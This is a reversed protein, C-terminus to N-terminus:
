RDAVQELITVAPLPKGELVQLFAGGGTSIYSIKDEIGFKALAALTDGGGAMSFGGGEAIGEALLQTGKSFQPFEFVGVPGNWVVTKASKVAEAYIERTQVLNQPWWLM